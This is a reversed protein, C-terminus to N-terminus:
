SRKEALYIAVSDEVQQVAQEPTLKGEYYDLAAERAASCLVEDLVVGRLKRLEAELDNTLQTKHGHFEETQELLTPTARWTVPYGDSAFIGYYPLATQVPDSLMLALFEMGAERNGGARLAGISTAVAAGSGDPGPIGAIEYPVPSQLYISIYSGIGVYSNAVLYYPYAGSINKTTDQLATDTQNIVSFGEKVLGAKEFEGYVAILQEVTELSYHEVLRGTQTLFAQYVQPQFTNDEWITDSWAPYGLDVVEDAFQVYYMADSETGQGRINKTGGWFACNLKGTKEEVLDAFGELSEVPDTLKSMRGLLYPTMKGPVAYLTGDLTFRELLNGYVFSTDLGDLPELFGKDMLSDVPLGDLILVDPGEGNVLETNLQTILDETTLASDAYQETAVVYRCQIEPHTQNWLAVATRVTHSDKLAYVTFSDTIEQRGEPNYSYQILAGNVSGKAWTYFLKDSVAAVRSPTTAPNGFAYRSSDEVLLSSGERDYYELTVERDGASDSYPLGVVLLGDGTETATACVLASSARPQDVLYAGTDLGYGIVRSRSSDSFWATGHTMDLGMVLNPDNPVYAALLTGDFAYYLLSSLHKSDEATKMTAMDYALIGDEEVSVVDLAGEPTVATAVGQIVLETEEKQIPIQTLVGDKLHYFARRTVEFGNSHVCSIVLNGAGGAIDLLWNNEQSGTTTATEGMMADLQEMWRDDQKEFTGDPNVVYYQYGADAMPSKGSLGANADPLQSFIYDVTGDASVSLLEVSKQGPVNALLWSERYEGAQPYVVVGPGNPDVQLPNLIDLVVPGAPETNQSSQPDGAATGDVTPTTEGPERCGALSVLLCLCVLMCILRRM